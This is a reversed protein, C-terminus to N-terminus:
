ALSKINSFVILAFKFFNDRYLTLTKRKSSQLLPNIFRSLGAFGEDCSTTDHTFLIRRTCFVPCLPVSSGLTVPQRITQMSLAVRSTLDCCPAPFSYTHIKLSWLATSSSFSTAWTFQFLMIYVKGRGNGGM